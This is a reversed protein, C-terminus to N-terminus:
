CTQMLLDLYICYHVYRYISMHSCTHLHTAMWSSSMRIMVNQHCRLNQPPIKYRLPRSAEYDLDAYIGGQQHLICYRGIDSGWSFWHPLNSAANPQLTWGACEYFRLLIYSQLVCAIVLYIYINYICSLYPYFLYWMIVYIVYLYFLCELGQSLHAWGLWSGDLQATVHYRLIRRSIITYYQM